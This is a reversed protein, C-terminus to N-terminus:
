NPPYVNLEQESVGKDTREEGEETAEGHKEGSAEGEGGERGESERGEEGEVASGCVLM